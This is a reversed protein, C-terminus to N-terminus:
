HQYDVPFLGIRMSQGGWKVCKIETSRNEAYGYDSSLTSVLITRRYVHDAIWSRLVNPSAVARATVIDAKVASHWNEIRENIVCIKKFELARTAARLFNARKRRSEVLFIETDPLCIKIPVAPIGAGSGVDVITQPARAEITKALALGRWIHRTALLSRESRSLLNIKGSWVYLLRGYTEIDRWKEDSLRPFVEENWGSRLKNFDSELTVFCEYESGPARPKM